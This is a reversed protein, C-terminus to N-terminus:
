LMDSLVQKRRRRRKGTCRRMYMTVTITTDRKILPLPQRRSNLIM